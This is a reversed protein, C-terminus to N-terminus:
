GESGAHGRWPEVQHGTTQWGSALGCPAITVVTHSSFPWCDPCSTVLARGCVDRRGYHMPPRKQHPRPWPLGNPSSRLPGIAGSHAPVPVGNPPTHREIRAPLMKKRRAGNLPIIGVPNPPIQHRMNQHDVVLGLEKPEHGPGRPLRGHPRRRGHVATDAQSSDAEGVHRVEDDEVEDHWADGATVDEASQMRGPGVELDQHERGLRSRPPACPAAPLPHRRSGPWATRWRALQQGPDRGADPPAPAPGFPRSTRRTPAM